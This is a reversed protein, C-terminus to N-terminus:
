APLYDRRYDFLASSVDHFDRESFTRFRQFIEEFRKVRTKDSSIFGTESLQFFSLFFSSSILSRLDCLPRGDAKFVCAGIAAERKGSASVAEFEHCSVLRM